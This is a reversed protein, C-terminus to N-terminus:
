KCVSCRFLSSFQELYLRCTVGTMYAKQKDSHMQVLIQKDAKAASVQQGQLFFLM